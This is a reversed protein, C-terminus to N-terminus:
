PNASTAQLVRVNLDITRGSKAARSECVTYTGCKSPQKVKSAKCPQLHLDGAGAWATSATLLALAAIALKM